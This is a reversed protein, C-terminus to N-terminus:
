AGGEPQQDAFGFFVDELSAEQVSIDLLRAGFGALATLAAMKQPRPCRILWHAPANAVAQMDLGQRALSQGIAQALATDGAPLVIQIRLPTAAQARLEAVTGLAAIAGGAMIALRDVRQQIEALVHSTIVVTVGEQARLERLVAYFGHIAQPDLGSTAEDLFLIGPRGLLAQAFGLRQRMGRSYERVRRHAAHALGVRELVSACARPDARKLRAFFRLTELASLNGYLAVNEPLYGIRRRVHRFQRSTTPVGDIRIEGGDPELLGLMLKFLTSKGAGNHGILGFMEGCGIRLNVDRVARIAGFACSAARVDVV